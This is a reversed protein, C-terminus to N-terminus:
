TPPTWHLAVLTKPAGEWARTTFRASVDTAGSAELLGELFGMTQYSATEEAVPSMGYGITMTAADDVVEGVGLAGYDFFSSSLVGFRMMTERPNGEAILMPVQKRVQPVQFRGWMRVGELQGLAVEKLIAIGLREFTDMPYWDDLDIRTHIWVLDEATLHKSWDVDRKGRVMRVYDVFLVGRVNKQTLSV